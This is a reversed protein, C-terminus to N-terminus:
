KTFLAVGVKKEYNDIRRIEEWSDIVGSVTTYSMDAVMILNQIQEQKQKAKKNTQVLLIDIVSLSPKTQNRENRKLESFLKSSFFITVLFSSVSSTSKTKKNSHTTGHCHQLLVEFYLTRHISRIIRRGFFWAIKLDNNKTKDSGHSSSQLWAVVFSLIESPASCAHSTKKRRKRTRQPRDRVPQGCM